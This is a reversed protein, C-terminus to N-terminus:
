KEETMGAKTQLGNPWGVYRRLLCGRGIGFLCGRGFRGLLFLRGNAIGQYWLKLSSKCRGRSNFSRGWRGRALTGRGRRLAWYNTVSECWNVRNGRWKSFRFTCSSTLGWSSINVVDVWVANIRAEAESDNENSISLFTHRPRKVVASVVVALREELVDVWDKSSQTKHLISLVNLVSVPVDSHERPM